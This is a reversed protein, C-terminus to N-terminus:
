ATKKSHGCFFSTSDCGTIAHFPLLASSSNCPLNASVEGLPIYKPKKSTGARIWMKSSFWTHHVLLLLLVDTDRIAALFCLQRRCCVAEPTALTTKDSPRLSTLHAKKELGRQWAAVQTAHFTNKGDLSADNIDINDATFHTFSQPSLNPPVVAGNENMYALTHQALSTDMSLIPKYSLVHGAKHFLEM